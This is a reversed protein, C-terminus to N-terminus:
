VTQPIQLLLEFIDEMSKKMESKKEAKLTETLGELLTSVKIVEAKKNLELKIYGAAANVATQADYITKNNELLPFIKRAIDMQHQVVASVKMGKKIEVKTKNTRKPTM